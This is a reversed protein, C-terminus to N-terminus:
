RTATKRRRTTQAHAPAGGQAASCVLHTASCKACRAVTHDAAFGQWHELQEPTLMGTGRCLPCTNELANLIAARIFESRNPIGRMAETLSADAKFTVIQRKRAGAM